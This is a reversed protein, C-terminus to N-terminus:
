QRERIKDQFEFAFTKLMPLDDAPRGKAQTAIAIYAWQQVIGNFLNDWAMWFLRESNDSAQRGGGYFWYIFSLKRVSLGKSSQPQDKRLALLTAPFPLQVTTTSEINYGQGPLCWQPKHISARQRGTVVVTALIQEGTARTYNKKLIVTDSPLQTKEVPSIGDLQSGCAPCAAGKQVSGDAIFTLCKDNQCYFVDKGTWEGVVSPLEHRIGCEVLRGPQGAFHISAITALFLLTLVALQRTKPM